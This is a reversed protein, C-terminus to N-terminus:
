NIKRTNKNANPSPFRVNKKYLCISINDKESLTKSEIIYKLLLVGAKHNKIPFRFENISVSALPAECNQHFRAPLLM